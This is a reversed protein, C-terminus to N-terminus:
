RVRIGNLYIMNGSSASLELNNLEDSILTGKVRHSMDSILRGDVISGHDMVFGTSGRMTAVSVWMMDTRSLILDVNGITRIAGVPENPDNTKFNNQGTNEDYQDSDDGSATEKVFYKGRFVELLATSKEKFVACSVISRNPLSFDLVRPNTGDPNVIFNVSFKYGDLVGRLTSKFEGNVGSSSFEILDIQQNALYIKGKVKDFNNRVNIELTGESFVGKYIGNSLNDYFALAESEKICSNCVYYTKAVTTGPPIDDDSNDCSFVFMATVLVAALSLLRVSRLTVSNKM